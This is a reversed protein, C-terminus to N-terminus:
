ARNSECWARWARRLGGELKRTFASQDLLASTALRARMGSRLASRRTRNRALAVALAIYQSKSDAILEQLGAATLLSAGVRAMHVDGVLTIVPVGMWLAECTTTTGNYPYTDLAIDIDRYSSLHDTREATWGRLELRDSSIGSARCEDVLRTIVEDSQLLSSKLLLRSEPVAELIKAWLSILESNVKLLTNCSGFVVPGAVDRLAVPPSDNPPRYCLFPTDLRLLHESHRDDALPPPDATADTIRYDIASLGTTDPYGLWTAQVPAPKTAFVPLRNLKTHGDLDILIDIRDERIRLALADADDDYVHRWADALKAIRSTTEDSRPHTYYCYIRYRGRDHSALVPEIFYGVSHLSFSRSVYGIRLMRQPDPSERCPQTDEPPVLESLMRGYLGHLGFLAEPVPQAEYHSYLLLGSFVETNRPSVALAAAFAGIAEEVRWAAALANGLALRAQLDSPFAEVCARYCDVAANLAGEDELTQGRRLWEGPSTRYSTDEESEPRSPSITSRDRDTFLQRILRLLM